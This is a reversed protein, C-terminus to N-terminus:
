NPPLRSGARVADPMYAARSEVLSKYPVHSGTAEIGLSFDLRRVGCPHAYRRPACPRLLGYYPPLSQLPAPSFPNRQEASAM